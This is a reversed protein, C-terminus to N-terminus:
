RRAADLFKAYYRKIRNSPIAYSVYPTTTKVAAMVGLLRGEKDLLPSGSDGQYMDQMSTQILDVQVSKGERSPARMGIGSVKGQIFSGRLIESGGVTYVPEGLKIADSDSFSFAPLPQDARVRLFAVDDDSAVWVLEAAKQTGDDFSVSVRAASRVIHANTVILGSPDIIVGTGTRAYTAGKLQRVVLVRGAEDRVLQAPGKEALANEAKIHVISRLSDQMLIIISDQAWLLPLRVAAVFIAGAMLLFVPANKFSTSNPKM